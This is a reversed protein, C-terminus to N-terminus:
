RTSLVFLKRANAVARLNTDGTLLIANNDIAGELIADDRALSSGSMKAGVYELSVRGKDSFEALRGLEIKGGRSDSEARVVAHLLVTFSEFFRSHRGLDKSLLGGLIINTDPLVFGCYYRLTFGFDPIGNRCNPCRAITQEGELTVIASRVTEGCTPCIITLGTVSFRGQQFLARTKPSLLEDRIPPVRKKPVDRYGDLQRVTKYSRKVFWPWARGSAKWASLWSKTKPDSPNGSGPSLSDVRWKRASDVVHMVRERERKAIISAVRAEIYRDDAKTEVLIEAGANRMARFFRDLSPGFGYNDLVLRCESQTVRRFLTNLMRQYTVDLIKNINYKDVHWPPIKELVYDLGEDRLGDIRSYLDEWYSLPRRRKTEAGSVVPTLPSVLSNPVLAAV